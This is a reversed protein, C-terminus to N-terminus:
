AGGQLVFGVHFVFLLGGVLVCAYEVAKEVVSKSKNCQGCHQMIRGM